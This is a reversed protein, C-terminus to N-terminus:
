QAAERAPEVAARPWRVSAQAGGGPRNAFAIEAGTRELLTTAIFVGLGMHMSEQDRERVRVSLYPEGLRDLVGVAFGPGDDEIVVELVDRDWSTRVDVQTRAFGVANEVLNGIGQVIEETPAIRPEPGTGAAAAAVKVDGRRHAAIAAEVLATVPPEHLPSGPDDEPRAALKALIDRCRAAEALLLAADEALPTGPPIDRAMEKAVVAITSLPTGLQHAAAAALAGLAALRQERALALQTAALADGVQRAEQAVSGAYIAIFAAATVIAAWIGALYLVPLDFPAATWPLPLHHYVLVSATATCLVVLAFTAWRSLITAAIVVPALLLIAFPNILGGTLYLLVGLQVTDWGLLAAVGREGLLAAPRALILLLNLLLSAAVAALAADLPLDVALVFKATLLAIAQGAIALWRALLLTRLRVRAVPAGFLRPPSLPRLAAAM